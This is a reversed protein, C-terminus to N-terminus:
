YYKAAIVFGYTIVNGARVAHLFSNALSVTCQVVVKLAEGQWDVGSEALPAGSWTVVAVWSMILSIKHKPKFGPQFDVTAMNDLMVSPDNAGLDEDTRLSGLLVWIRALQLLNTFTAM